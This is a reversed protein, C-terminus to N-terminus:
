RITIGDRAITSMARSDTQYSPDIESDPKQEYRTSHHVLLADPNVKEASAGGTRILHFANETRCLQM